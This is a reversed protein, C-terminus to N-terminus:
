LQASDVNEELFTVVANTYGERDKIFSVGHDAGDVILLKKKGCCASYGDRSMNCPVFGDESGHIMLVAKKSGDVEHIYAKHPM